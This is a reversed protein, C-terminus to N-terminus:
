LSHLYILTKVDTENIIFIKGIDEPKKSFYDELNKGSNDWIKEHITTKKAVGEMEFIETELYEIRKELKKETKVTFNKNFIIISDNKFIKLNFTRKIGRLNRNEKGKYGNYFDWNPDGHKSYNDNNEDFFIGWLSRYTVDNVELFEGEITSDTNEIFNNNDIKSSYNNHPLFIIHLRNRYYTGTNKSLYFFSGITKTKDVAKIEAKLRDSKNFDLNILVFGLKYFPQPPRTDGGIPQDEQTNVCGKTFVIIIFIISLICTFKTFEKM